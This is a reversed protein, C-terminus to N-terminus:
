EDREHLPFSALVSDALACIGQYDYKRGLKPQWYSGHALWHRLKFAGALESILPGTQPHERQWAVFIHDELGVNPGKDKYLARFAKSLADRKRKQCRQLYDIRFAAELRILIALSSRVDTENLRDALEAAIESSRMALFRVAFSPNV